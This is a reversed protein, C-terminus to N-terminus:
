DHILNQISCMVSESGSEFCKVRLGLKRLRHIATIGSFGAGIVIADCEIPEQSPTGNAEKTHEHVQPKPDDPFTDATVLVEGNLLEITDDRAM